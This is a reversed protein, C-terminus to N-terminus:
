RKMTHVFKYRDARYASRVLEFPTGDELYSTRLILLVPSGKEIQLHKVEHDKASTAEIEQSAESINLTLKEEIYKYLSQNIIDETLGKILNAPLYTTEVAMPVHDALRIRRIEYVPTNEKLGLRHAIPQSAPIIEFSLLRSSPTMGRELMDETFSTLGQLKQEVKQKSVYTGKGKQRHLFGDKVLNNIAHRVTMRSIQYREAYERESPILEDAELSGNEIQSKIQEELQHYIPVPSNKDIM